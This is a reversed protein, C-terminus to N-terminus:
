NTYSEVPMIQISQVLIFFCIWMESPLRVKARVTDHTLGRVTTMMAPGDLSGGCAKIAAVLSLSLSPSSSFSTFLEETQFLSVLHKPSVNLNTFNLTTKFSLNTKSSIKLKYFLNSSSSSFSTTYRFQSFYCYQFKLLLLYWTYMIGCTLM